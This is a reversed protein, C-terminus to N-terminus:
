LANYDMLVIRDINKLEKIAYLRGEGLEVIKKGIREGTKDLSIGVLSITIGKARANSVSKLTDSEPSKGQTPLADTLIIMHKTEKGKPFLEIASNIAESINTGKKPMIPVIERLLQKFNNTPEQKHVVGSSFVVLGIKNGEEIAKYALAVGAKKAFDIKSDKMSGSSDLVFIVVKQTRKVRQRAVLDNKLVTKHGRRTALKITSKIDLDRFPTKKYNVRDEPLGYPHKIKKLKGSLRGKPMLEELEEIYLLAGALELGLDNIKGDKNILGKEKLSEHIMLLQSRLEKRFEPIKLNKQLYAPSHGTALKIMTPGYIKEATHYDEVLSEYMEDPIINRKGQNLAEKLLKGDKITEKDSNLVSHMLKNEKTQSELSGDLSTIEQDTKASGLLGV